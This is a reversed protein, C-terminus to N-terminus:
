KKDGTEYIKRIKDEIEERSNGYILDGNLGKFAFEGDECPNLPRNVQSVHTSGFKHEVRFLFGCGPIEAHLVWRDKTPSIYSEKERTRPPLGM